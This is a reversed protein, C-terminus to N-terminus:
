CGGTAGRGRGPVGSGSLSKEFGILTARPRFGYRHYLALAPANDQRCGVLCRRVGAALLTNLTRALLLTAIGRRRYPERVGLSAIGGIESAQQASLRPMAAFVLTGADGRAPPDGGGSAALSARCELPRHGRWSDADWRSALRRGEVVVRVPLAPPREPFPGATDAVLLHSTFYPVYGAARFARLAVAHAEPLVPELGCLLGRYFPYGGANGGWGIAKTAGGAALWGEAAALLAAATAPEDPPAFLASIAGVDRRLGQRDANPTASAHVYGVPRGGRYALILGGREFCARAAISERFFGADLTACYPLGAVGRNFVEVVDPALADAYPQLELTGV